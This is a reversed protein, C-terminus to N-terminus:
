VVETLLLDAWFAEIKLGKRSRRTAFGCGRVRSFGHSQAGGSEGEEFMGFSESGRSVVIGGAPGGNAVAVLKAGAFGEGVADRSGLGLLKEDGVNGSGAAGDLMEDLNRESLASVVSEDVEAEIETPAPESAGRKEALEIGAIVICSAALQEEPILGATVRQRGKLGAALGFEVKPAASGSLRM